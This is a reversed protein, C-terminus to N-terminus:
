DSGSGWNKICSIGNRKAEFLDQYLEEVKLQKTGEEVVAELNKLLEKQEYQDLKLKKGPIPEYFPSIFDSDPGFQKVPSNQATLSDKIREIEMDLEQDTFSDWDVLSEALKDELMQM